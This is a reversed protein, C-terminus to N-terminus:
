GNRQRNKIFVDNCRRRCSRTSVLNTGRSAVPSRGFLNRGIELGGPNNAKEQMLKYATYGRWDTSGDSNASLEQAELHTQVAQSGGTFDAILSAMKSSDSGQVTFNIGELIDKGGGSNDGWVGDNYTWSGDSDTHVYGNAFEGETPPVAAMGTPDILNIPNNNVYQYPTM